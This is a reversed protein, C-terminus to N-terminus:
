LAFFCFACAAMREEKRVNERVPAKKDEATQIEQRAPKIDVQNADSLSVNAPVAFESSNVLSIFELGVSSTKAPASSNQPMSQSKAAIMTTLSNVDKINM